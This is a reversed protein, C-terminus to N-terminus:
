LVSKYINLHVCNTYKWIIFEGFKTYIIYWFEEDIIYVICEFPIHLHNFDSSVILKDKHVIVTTQLVTLRNFNFNEVTYRHIPYKTFIPKWYEPYESFEGTTYPEFYGIKPSGPYERVLIFGKISQKKEMTDINKISNFKRRQKVIKLIHWQKFWQM